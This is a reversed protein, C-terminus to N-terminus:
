VKSKCSKGEIPSLQVGTVGAELNGNFNVSYHFMHCDHSV